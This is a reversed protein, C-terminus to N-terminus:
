IGVNFGNKITIRCCFAFLFDNKRIWAELGNGDKAGCMKEVLFVDRKDWADHGFDRMAFGADVDIGAGSNAFAKADVVACADDDAFGAVDAVVDFEVVADGEAGPAPPLVPM